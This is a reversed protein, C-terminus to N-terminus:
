ARGEAKAIAARANKFVTGYYVIEECKAGHTEEGCVEAFTLAAELLGKCAALLDPAAAFLRDEAEEDEDPYYNAGAVRVTVILAEALPVRLARNECSEIEDALRIAEAIHRKLRNLEKQM